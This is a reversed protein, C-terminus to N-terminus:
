NRAAQLDGLAGAPLEATGEDEGLYAALVAPDGRIEDPTGAALVAGFQMVTVRDCISLVLPVDHEVLLVGIGWERALRVILKGMEGTEFNDLGSAPEDLLLVSPQTALARAIGVLRRRGYSLDDPMLDLYPELGFDHVAAIAASSLPVDRPYVLDAVYPLLTKSDSATRLNDRISMDHFLELSQFSRALGERTRRAAAWRDIRAGGLTVTGTASPVFGTVADILTTKGAGNPGILGHVQGPQVILDVSDVALVGGFRVTLNRVELPKPVVRSKVTSVDPLPAPEKRPRDRRLLHRIAKINHTRALGDQNAVLVGIVAIGALGRLLVDFDDLNAFPRAAFGHPAMGLGGIIAGLIYGIGGTVAVLVVNVSNLLAFADEYNVTPFRYAMLVGGLGAIAAGLGFAYVKVTYVSIGVSAAARENSRVAIM